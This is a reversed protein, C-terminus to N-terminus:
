LALRQRSQELKQILDNIQGECQQWQGQLNSLHRNTNETEVKWEKLREQWTHLLSQKTELQQGLETDTPPHQILPQ